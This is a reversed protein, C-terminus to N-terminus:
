QQVGLQPVARSVVQAVAIGAAVKCIDPVIFPAVAAAFAQAPGLAGAVMLWAWGIVFMMVDVTYAAIIRRKASSSDGVIASAVLSAPALALLFGGTMGFLVGAGGQMGSFVPLGCAGLLLYGLLAVVIREPTMAAVVFAVAMTQLTFPVPGVPVTIWASVSMLAICAAAFSIDHTTLSKARNAM